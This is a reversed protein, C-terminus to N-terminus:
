KLPARVSKRESNNEIATLLHDLSEGFHRQVSRAMMEPTVRGPVSTVEVAWTRVAKAGHREELDDFVSWSAAYRTQMNSEDGVLDEATFTFTGSPSYSPDTKVRVRDEPSLQRLIAEPRPRISGWEALNPPVTSATLDALRKRKDARAAVPDISAFVKAGVWQAHGEAFWRPTQSGFRTQFDHVQEHPIVSTILQKLRVPLRGARDVHVIWRTKIGTGRPPAYKTDQTFVVSAWEADRRDDGLETKLRSIQAGLCAAHSRAVGESGKDFYILMYAGHTASVRLKWLRGERKPLDVM